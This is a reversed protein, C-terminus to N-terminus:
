RDVNVVIQSGNFTVRADFNADEARFINKFKEILSERNASRNDDGFRIVLIGIRSSSCLGMKSIKQSVRRFRFQLSIVRFFFLPPPSIVFLARLRAFSDFFGRLGAVGHWFIGISACRVFIAAYARARENCGPSEMM